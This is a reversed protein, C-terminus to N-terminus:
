RSRRSARRPRGRAERPRIRARGAVRGPARAHAVLVLVLVHVVVLEAVLDDLLVPMRQERRVPPREPADADVDAGGGGVQDERGQLDPPLARRERAAELDGPAVHVVGRRDDEGGEGAAGGDVGPLQGGEDFLGVRVGARPRLVDVGARDDGGSIRRPLLVRLGDHAQEGLARAIEHARARAGDQLRLHGGVARARHHARGPPSRRDHHEVHVHAAAGGLERYGSAPPDFRHRGDVDARPEEGEVRLVDDGPDLGRRRGARAMVMQAEALSLPRVLRTEGPEGVDQRRRQEFGGGAPGEGWEGLLKQDGSIKGGPVGDVHHEERAPHRLVEVPLAARAVPIEAEPEGAREALADAGRKGARPDLQGPFADPRRDDAGGLEGHLHAAVGDM